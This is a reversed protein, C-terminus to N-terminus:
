FVGLKCLSKFRTRKHPPVYLLRKVHTADLHNCVVIDSTMSVDLGKSLTSILIPLLWRSTGLALIVITLNSPVVKNFLAILREGLVRLNYFLNLTLYVLYIEVIWRLFCEQLLPALHSDVFRAYMHM